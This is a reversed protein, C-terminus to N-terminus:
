ISVSVPEPDSGQKKRTRPCNTSWKKEPAVLDALAQLRPDTRHIYRATASLSKQNLLRRVDEASAGHQVYLETCSHRLEHPTVRPVGAENCLKVLAKNFVKYSLMEGCNDCCVFDTPGAVKRHLALFEALQPAMPVKCWDKGKPHPQMKNIRRNFTQRILIQKREFSIAEWTLGQIEGIRLGALLALWITPAVPHNSCHELLQWSQDPTLFNRERIQVKPRYRKRVPSSSLLDYHEIADEFIKHLLNYAHLVTQASLGTHGMEALVNGIDQSRIELLKKSSLVPLLYTRAMQDQSLRWGESVRNRCELRWKTWYDGFTISRNEFSPSLKGTVRKIKLEAEYAEADAKRHFVPSHYWRRNPDRVKVVYSNGSHKTKRLEISM